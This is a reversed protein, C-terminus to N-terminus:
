RSMETPITHLGNTRSQRTKRCTRCHRKGGPTRYTNSEDYPHGSPCHTREQMPLGAGALARRRRKDAAGRTNACTRCYRRGGYLRTNDDDYPHGKPCRKKAASPHTGHRVRDYGNESPTGWRVNGPTNDSPRGNLHRAEYGPPCPGHFVEAVLRHLYRKHDAGDQWLRVFLYGGEQESPRLLRPTKAKHSRVQGLSSVEYGLFGPIPLWIEQRSM